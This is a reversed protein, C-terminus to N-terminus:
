EASEKEKVQYEWLGYNPNGRRRRNVAYAGYATKRLDRLKASIGTESGGCYLQIESFTRWRGDLMLDRIRDRLTRLRNGDLSYDFTATSM